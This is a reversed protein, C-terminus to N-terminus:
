GIGPAEIGITSRGGGQRRVRIRVPIRDKMAEVHSIVGVSRGQSQLLELADIALDLSESDLSGFGEDIFLTAALGGKGGMRSLALALALSVLFREGGSLSRTARPEGGMDRDQVQLALDAARRLRYRPKLDALHHNARDVLLDLTISQAVRAFRDGGRSGVAANVAQWLDVAARAATIEDELGALTARTAADAALQGGIAGIREQRAQQAADLAAIATALDAAPTDPIGAARARDLDGQRAAIAANSATVADDLARLRLRLAQVDARPLALLPPLTGEDLGADALARALADTATTLLETAQALARAAADRAGQATGLTAQAEALARAATRNADQAALRTENFRTRHTETAEGGLLTGREAVLADLATQRKHHADRGEAALRTATDAAGKAEALKPALTAIAAAAADRATRAGTLSQVKAGLRARLAPMDDLATAPEGAAALLPLLTADLDARRAAQDRATQTHLAADQAVQAAKATLADRQRGRTEIAQQITSRQRDAQALHLRLAALDRLTASASAAAKRVQAIADALANQATAPDDPLPPCLPEARAAALGARWDRLAHNQAPTERALTEAALKGRAAAAAARGQAQTAADRAAQADARARTLDDRLGQALAALAADAPLPHDTAGCVPCPQGPDLHLRLRRAADSVAVEARDLPQALATAAAEAQLLATTAAALDTAAAQAETEAQAGAHAAAALATTAAAHDRRAQELAALTHSLAALAEARDQPATAEAADIRAALDAATTAATDRATRDAADAQELAAMQAAIDRSTNNLATAQMAATTEAQHAAARAALDRAISDWGDALPAIAALTEARTTAEHLANRARTDQATLDALTTAARGQALAADTAQTASRQVEAGAATILADLRQAETWLPGNAKFEAEKRDHDVQATAALTALRDAEAKAKALATDADTLATQAANQAARADQAAQWPLRLPEAADIRALHDRNDAAAERIAIAQAAADQALTLAQQAAALAAHRDLDAALRARDAQATAVEAMAADREAALAARDDDSLLRHENRRLILADHAAQAAGAREFVRISINRYLATGTVKELLAARENTEARLFADFDGQALLVTRRFEDYSLGTLTQVLDNVASIQSALVQGDSLRTVARAVQQLRGEARDRARRATWRAEYVQGDLATFTVAAWGTAAGRRLIARADRARIAEGSTDPVEDQASGVTLRPADGYLALCMADLISSKGSGTEGTIAFLGAGRLPPADLDIHFPDALSAINAGSISLIRM